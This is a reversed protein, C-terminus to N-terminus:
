KKVMKKIRSKVMLLAEVDTPLYTRVEGNSVNKVRIFYSSKDIVTVDKRQNEMFPPIHYIVDKEFDSFPTKAKLSKWKNLREERTLVNNSQNNKKYLPCWEPAIFDKNKVDFSNTILTWMRTSTPTARRACFMSYNGDSKEFKELNECNNCINVEEFM